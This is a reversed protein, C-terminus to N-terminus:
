GALKRRIFYVLGAAVAPTVFALFTFSITSTLNASGTFYAYFVNAANLLAVVAIIIVGTRPRIWGVQATSEEQEAPPEKGKRKQRSQRDAM